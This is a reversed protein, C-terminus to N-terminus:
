KQCLKELLQNQAQLLAIIKQQNQNFHKVEEILPQLNVLM